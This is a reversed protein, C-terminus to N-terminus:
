RLKGIQLSVLAGGFSHGSNLNGFASLSVGFVPFPSVTMVEVEFPIGALNHRVEQYHKISVSFNNETFLFDGRQVVVTYSLGTSITFTTQDFRYAHGVLVAYVVTREVPTDTLFPDPNGTGIVDLSLVTSSFLVSAGVIGAFGESSGGLGFTLWYRPHTTHDTSDQAKLLDAQANFLGICLPFGIISLLRNM